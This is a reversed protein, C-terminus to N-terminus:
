PSEGPLQDWWVSILAASGEASTEIPAAAQGSAVTTSVVRQMVVPRLKRKVRVGDYGPNAVSGAETGGEL